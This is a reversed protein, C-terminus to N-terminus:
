NKLKKCYSNDTHFGNDHDFTAGDLLLAADLFGRCFSTKPHLPDNLIGSNLMHIFKGNIQVQGYCLKNNYSFYQKQYPPTGDNSINYFPYYMIIEDRVWYTRKDLNKKSIFTEWNKGGTDFGIEVDPNWNMNENKIFDFKYFSLWPHLEWPGDTIKEKEFGPSKFKIAEDVDGYMGHKDLFDIITFPRFMFFDQDLFAFYKPERKKIIEYYVYNLKNGLMFSPHYNEGSYEPPIYLLEVGMKECINKTLKSNEPLKGCNSDIIIINFPDKCFQRITKIQYEVCFINNYCILYFEIM